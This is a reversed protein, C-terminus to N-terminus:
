EATTKPHLLRRHYCACFCLVQWETQTVRWHQWQWLLICCCDDGTQYFHGARCHDMLQQEPWGTQVDNGSCRLLSWRKTHSSLPQNTSSRFLPCSFAGPFSFLHSRSSPVSLFSVLFVASSSYVHSCVCLCFHCHSLCVSVSPTLSQFHSCSCVDLCACWFPLQQMKIGVLVILACHTRQAAWRPLLHSCLLSRGYSGQRATEEGSPKFLLWCDTTMRISWNFHVHEHQIGTGPCTQRPLNALNISCPRVFVGSLQKVSCQCWRFRAFFAVPSQLKSILNAESRSYMHRSCSLTLASFYWQDATVGSGSRICQVSVQVQFAGEPTKALSAFCHFCLSQNLLPRTWASIGFAWLANRRGRLATGGMWCFLSWTCEWGAWKNGGGRIWMCMRYSFSLKFGTQWFRVGRWRGGRIWHHGGGVWGQRSRWTKDGLHGVQGVGEVYVSDLTGVLGLYKSMRWWCIIRQRPKWTPERRCRSPRWETVFNREVASWLVCVLECDKRTQRELCWNWHRFLTELQRGMFNKM